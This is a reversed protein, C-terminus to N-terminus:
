DQESKTARLLQDKLNPPIGKIMLTDTHPNYSVREGLLKREFSITVGGGSGSFKALSKLMSRDPQFNPELPQEAQANFAEFDFSHENDRPLIEALEKISVDSDEALQQKFYNAVSGRHDDKEKPESVQEALYDDVQTMLQKNQQKVDVKEECGIFNMFFDSVKRGMRGKIFSIYRFQEPTIKWQTMDIRLALQMKALELYQSYDLNLDQNVAIHQKTDILAVLLYETALHEYHSFILFGSEVMADNVLTELLLNGSNVSFDLFTLENDAVQKLSPAFTSASESDFGGVGKGPKSNFASHLQQSLTEIQTNIEFCSARPIFHLKGDDALSLRHVVFNHVM